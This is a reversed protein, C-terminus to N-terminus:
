PNGPTRSAKAKGIAKDLEERSAEGLTATDVSYLSAIGMTTSASIMVNCQQQAVTANKAAEALAQGVAAYLNQVCLAPSLALSQPIPGATQSDGAM